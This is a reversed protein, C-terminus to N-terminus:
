KGKTDEVDLSAVGEELKRVDLSNDTVAHVLQTKDDSSSVKCKEQLYKVNEKCQIELWM